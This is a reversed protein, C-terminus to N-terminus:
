SVEFSKVKLMISKGPVKAANRVNNNAHRKDAM